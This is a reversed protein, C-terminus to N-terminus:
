SRLTQVRFDDEEQEIAIGLSEGGAILQSWDIKGSSIMALDSKIGARITGGPDWGQGFELAFNTNLYELWNYIGQMGRQINTVAAKQDGLRYLTLGYYMRALNDSPHQRLDKELTQRAQAYNGTLYQARGLFSSVGERIETGYVYNPDAKEANQFSGLAAQYNGALLAQRGQEVDGGSQVAGCASLLVSFLLLSLFHRMKMTIEKKELKMPQSRWHGNFVSLPQGSNAQM